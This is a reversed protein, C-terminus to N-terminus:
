WRVVPASDMSAWKIQDTWALKLHAVPNHTPAGAEAAWLARPLLLSGLAGTSTVIFERRQLRLSRHINTM